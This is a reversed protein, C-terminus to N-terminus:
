ELVTPTYILYVSQVITECHWTEKQTLDYEYDFVTYL